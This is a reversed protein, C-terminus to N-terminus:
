INSKLLLQLVIDNKIVGSKIMEMLLETLISGDKVTISTILVKKM